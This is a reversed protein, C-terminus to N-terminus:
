WTVQDLWQCINVSAHGANSGFVDKQGLREIVWQLSVNQWSETALEAERSLGMESKDAELGAYRLSPYTKHGCLHRCDM